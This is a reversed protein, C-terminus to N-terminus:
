VRNIRKELVSLWELIDEFSPPDGFFMASMDRYDKRLASLREQPPVLHFSGPKALDYHAWGSHYFLDKHTTVRKLLGLDALAEGVVPTTSMQAVDAYHRSYRLPMPKKQPRHYEAHLITAKEWFTRRAVVTAVSCKPQSFAKPFYAAAYPEIDYNENPVPEAHTGFELIVRPRIYDLGTDISCPFEFGVINGDSSSIEIRWDKRSLIGNVRAILIPLLEGAIYNQCATLMENLLSARKTHSLEERRPDKEEIFGLKEFDVAIDIDESFRRILNFCKSLSTGGKFVLRGSFENITFLQKLIWCVWFDMEIIVPHLGMRAASENFLDARDPRILQAVNDV